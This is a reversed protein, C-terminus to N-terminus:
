DLEPATAPEAARKARDIGETIINYVAPPYEEYVKQRLRDAMAEARGADIHFHAGVETPLGGALIASDALALAARPEIGEDTLSTVMEDLVGTLRPEVDTVMASLSRLRSGDLNDAQYWIADADVRPAATVGTVPDFSPSEGRASLGMLLEANASAEVLAQRLAPHNSVAEQLAQNSHRISDELSVEFPDQDGVMAGTLVVTWATREAEIFPVGAGQMQKRLHDNLKRLEVNAHFVIGALSRIEGPSMQNIRQWQSGAQRPTSPDAGEELTARGLSEDRIGNVFETPAWGSQGAEPMIAPRALAASGLSMLAAVGGAAAMAPFASFAARVASRIKDTVDQSM